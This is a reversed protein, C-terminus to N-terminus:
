NEKNSNYIRRVRVSMESLHSGDLNTDEKKMYEYLADVYDSKRWKSGTEIKFYEALNKLQTLNYMKLEDKTFIM